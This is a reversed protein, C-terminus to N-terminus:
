FYPNRFYNCGSHKWGNSRMIDIIFQHEPSNPEIFIPKGCVTCYYWLKNQDKLKKYIYDAGEAYGLKKGRELGEACGKNYGEEDGKKQGKDFGLQWGKKFGDSEGMNYGNKEGYKIGEDYAANRIKEFDMKMKGLAMRIFSRRSYGTKELFEQLAIFLAKTLRVTWNPNNKEYRVRSPPKHKVMLLGGM